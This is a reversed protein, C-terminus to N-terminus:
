IALSEPLALKYLKDEIEQQRAPLTHTHLPLDSGQPYFEKIKVVVDTLLKDSIEITHWNKMDIHLCGLTHDIEHMFIQLFEELNEKWSASLKMTIKHFWGLDKEISTGISGNFNYTRLGVSAQGGMGRNIGYYKKSYVFTVIMNDLLGREKAVLKVIGRLMKEPEGTKNRILIRMWFMEM